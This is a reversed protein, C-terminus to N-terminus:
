ADLFVTQAAEYQWFKGKGDTLEYWTGPNLKGRRIVTRVYIGDRKPNRESAWVGRMREGFKPKRTNGRVGPCSDGFLIEDKGCLLESM